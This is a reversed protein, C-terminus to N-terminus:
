KIVVKRGNVIYLGKTPKAVRRGQLDYVSHEINLTGHEINEVGTTEGEGFVLTLGRAAGAGAMPDSDCHLYAKNTAVSGSGIQYFLGDTFLIYDYTSGNFVTTGDGAKLLNTGIADASELAPVSYETDATGILVLPTGTPVTTVEDLTVVGASAASARYAKLGSVGSFDLASSAVYTSKDNAPKITANERVVSLATLFTTAGGSRGIYLAKADATLTFYGTTLAKPNSATGGNVNAFNEGTVIASGIADDDYIAITTTKASSNSYCGTWVIRDGKHFTGAEPTIKWYNNAKDGSGLSSSFKIVTVSSGNISQSETSVNSGVTGTGVSTSYDYVKVGVTPYTVSLYKYYSEEGIVIQLNGTATATYTYINSALTTTNGEFTTASKGEGPAGYVYLKIVADKTVPVTLKTGGNMQTWDTWNGNAIKGASPDMTLPMDITESGLTMQAVYKYAADGQHAWSPAGQGTQFQWTVTAPCVGLESTNATFVATMTTNATITASAGPVHTTSGDNWGTLTYGEKYLTQNKPLTVSSSVEEAAPVTGTVGTADGISYTVTFLPNVTLAIVDSTASGESNTAVAYFYYTGATATSPAYTTNTAGDIAAPNTKLADDCSYWQITPDPVGTVTATLTVATNQTVTTATAVASITPAAAASITITAVDSSFTGNNDTMKCFYYYTGVAATSFGDYSASTAGDIAAEGTKDAATCSYWQYTPTGATSNTTVTLANPVANLGYTADAPQSTFPTTTIALVYCLQTGANNFTFSSVGGLTYTSHDPNTTLAGDNGCSWLPETYSTGNVEKWYYNTSGLESTKKNVYGYIDVSYAYKGSPMTLKNQAGNSVKITKYSTGNITIDNGSSLDKDGRMIKISTGDAWTALNNKTGTTSLDTNDNSTTPATNWSVMLVDDAWASGISLLALTLLSFVKKM